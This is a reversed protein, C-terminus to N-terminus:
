YRVLAEEKNEQFHPMIQQSFLDQTRITKWHEMGAYTCLLAIESLDPCAEIVKKVKPQIEDPSGVWVYEDDILKQYPIDALSELAGSAYFGFDKKIMEEKPPLEKAPSVNGKMFQLIYPEAEKRAREGGDDLYLAQVYVIDPTNGHEKCSKRYIDLQGLVHELPLMPTILVGWGKKGALEYNHNSAGGTFIRPKKTPRPVVRVNEVDYYKGHYSFVEEELAKEIIELSEVFRGRSEELPISAKPFVWAHGRGVAFEFRGGTLIDTVAAQGAFVMPNHLPLVHSCTRFRINSTHQAAASYLAMPNASISFEEFWHHELTNFTSFGRKDAHEIQELIERYVQAHPKKYQEPNQMEVYIGFNM